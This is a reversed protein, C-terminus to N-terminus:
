LCGNNAPHLLFIEGFYGTVRMENHVLRIRNINNGSYKQVKLDLNYRSKNM